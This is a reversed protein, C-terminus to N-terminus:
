DIIWRTRMGHLYRQFRSRLYDDNVDYETGLFLQKRQEQQDTAAANRARREQERLPAVLDRIFQHDSPTLKVVKKLKEDQIRM